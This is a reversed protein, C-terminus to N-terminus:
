LAEVIIAVRKIAAGAAVHQDRAAVLGRTNSGHQPAGSDNGRLEWVSETLLDSRERPRLSGMVM